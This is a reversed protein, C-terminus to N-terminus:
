VRVLCPEHGVTPIGIAGCKVCGVSPRARAREPVARATPVPRRKRNRRADQVCLKYCDLADSANLWPTCPRNDVPCTVTIVNGERSLALASM